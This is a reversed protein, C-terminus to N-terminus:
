EDSGFDLKRGVAGHPIASRTRVARIRPPSVFPTNVPLVIPAAPLIVIPAIEASQTVTASMNSHLFPHLPPRLALLTAHSYTLQPLSLSSYSSSSSTATLHSKVIQLKGKKTRRYSPKIYFQRMKWTQKLNLNSNLPLSIIDGRRSVRVFVVCGRVKRGYAVKTAIANIEPPEDFVGFYLQHHRDVRMCEFKSCQILYGIEDELNGKIWSADVVVHRQTGDLALAIVRKGFMALLLIVM